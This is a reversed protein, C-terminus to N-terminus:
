LLPVRLNRTVQGLLRRLGLDPSTLEGIYKAWYLARYGPANFVEAFPNPETSWYLVLLVLLREGVHLLLDVGVVALSLKFRAALLSFLGIRFYLTSWFLLIFM